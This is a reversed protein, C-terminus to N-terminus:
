HVWFRWKCTCLSIKAGDSCSRPFGRTVWGRATQEGCRGFGPACPPQDSSNGGEGARGAGGFDALPPKQTKQPNKKKQQQSWHSMFQLRHVTFPIIFSLTSATWKTKIPSIGVWPSVLKSIGGIHMKVGRPLEPPCVFCTQKPKSFLWVLMETYKLPLPM